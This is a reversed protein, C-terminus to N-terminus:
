IRKVVRILNPVRNGKSISSGLPIDRVAVDEKGTASEIMVVDTDRVILIDRIADGRGLKIVNNGARARSSMPLASIDIKNIYGNHTVVIANTCGGFVVSMGDVNDNTNMAKVGRTARKLVPIDDSKFRLAKKHSYTIIQNDGNQTIVISQVKDGNELKSYILGGSAVSCFDDLELRKIYGAQTLVVMTYAKSKALEKVKSESIINTVISTMKKNLSLADTGNQGKGTLPIKHVPMSFVRGFGDFM